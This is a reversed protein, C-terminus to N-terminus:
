GGRIMALGNNIIHLYTAGEVERDKLVLFCSAVAFIFTVALAADYSLGKSGIHYVVFLASVIGALVISGKNVTNINVKLVKSMLDLLTGFFTRTEISAVLITGAIFTLIPNTSYIKTESGFISRKVKVLVDNLGESHSLVTVVSISLVFVVVLAIIAHLLAQGSNNSVGNFILGGNVKFALWYAVNAVVFITMLQSFSADFAINYFALALIWWVFIYPEGFVYKLELAM